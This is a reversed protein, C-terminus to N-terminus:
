RRNSFKRYLFPLFFCRRCIQFFSMVLFNPFRYFLLIWRICKLKLRLKSMDIAQKSELFTSKYEQRIFPYYVSPAKRSIFCDLMTTICHQYLAANVTRTEWGHKLCLNLIKKRSEWLKVAFDSRAVASTDRQRYFYLALPIFAFKLSKHTLQFLFYEDEPSISSPFYVNSLMKKNFIKNFCYGGTALNLANTKLSFISNRFEEVSITKIQSILDINNTSELIPKIHEFQSFKIYNCILVDAKSLILAEYLSSLYTPAVIDDSDVFVVYPANAIELALNRAHSVGKNSTHVTIFRQDRKSFSDCIEFCNDTSGDDVLIVEFDKFNQNQLSELCQTLYPEVNYVPVIVTIIPQYNDLKIMM